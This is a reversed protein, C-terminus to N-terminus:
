KALEPAFEMMASATLNMFMHMAIPIYLSKSKLKAISFIIGIIFITGIEFWGYQMHIIAWSASTLLVAGIVGLFTRRLGELLFGRFLFEEFLPAAVGVAIWLAFKNNTSGYVKSMFEPTEHELLQAVVEMLVFVILMVGIWKLFTKIPNLPMQLELYQASTLQKKMYIFLMIFAVGIIASPIEALSILDGDYALKEISAKMQAEGQTFIDLNLLGTQVAYGVLIGTQLIGFIVFALFGFSITGFFGWYPSKNENNYNINNSSDTSDTNQLSSDTM